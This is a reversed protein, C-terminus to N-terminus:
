SREVRDQTLPVSFVTAMTLWPPTIRIRSAHANCIGSWAIKRRAWSWAAMFKISDTSPNGLTLGHIM